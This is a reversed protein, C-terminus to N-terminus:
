LFRASIVVSAGDSVTKAGALSSEPMTYVHGLIVFFAALWSFIPPFFSYSLFHLLFFVQIFLYNLSRMFSHIFLRIVTPFFFFIPSHVLSLIFVSRALSCVFSRDVGHLFSHALICLFLHTFSHILLRISSFFPLILQYQVFLLAFSPVFIRLFLHTLTDDFSRVFSQVM